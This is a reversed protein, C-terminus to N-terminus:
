MKGIKRIKNNSKTAEASIEPDSTAKKESEGPWNSSNLSLSSLLSSRTLFNSSLGLNSRAVISIEFLKTLTDMIM